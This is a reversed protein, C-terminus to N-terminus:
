VRFQIMCLGLLLQLRWRWWEEWSIFGDPVGASYPHQYDYLYRDSRNSILQEIESKNIIGDLRKLEQEITPNNRQSNTHENWRVYDLHLGDIDYNRVIEM